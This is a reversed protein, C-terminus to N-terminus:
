TRDKVRIVLKLGSWTEDVACVKIDVLGLSLALDRIVNEDLDTQIQASKKPWSVWIMGNAAMRKKLRKLKGEVAKKHTAFVHIFDLSSHSEDHLSIGEPLTGLLAQYNEPPDIIAVAFGSKLGLKQALPKGSYGTVM